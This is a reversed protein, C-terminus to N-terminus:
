KECKLFVAGLPPVTINISFPRGHWSVPSTESGGINGQGSGWYESADSNFLERWFGRAPVGIRYNHRPVPTFNFALIVTDEPDQGKRMFTLVSQESDNADIWEFGEHGFDISHLAPQERYVRNLDEMARQLGHHSAHQTLDWDLSYDHRWELGQGFEGGMFILKKGPQAYMYSFLLRLNAFKQWDDGPMKGLLSGKGHVVEDHSLPLVFNETFAYVM